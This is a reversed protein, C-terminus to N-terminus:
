ARSNASLTGINADSPQIGVGEVRASASSTTDFSPLLFRDSAHWEFVSEVQGLARPSECLEILWWYTGFAVVLTTAISIAMFSATTWGSVKYAM